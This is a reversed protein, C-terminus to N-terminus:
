RHDLEGTGVHAREDLSARRGSTPEIEDVPHRWSFQHVEDQGLRRVRVFQATRPKELGPLIELLDTRQQPAHLVTAIGSQCPQRRMEIAQGDAVLGVRRDISEVRDIEHGDM